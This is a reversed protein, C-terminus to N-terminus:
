CKSLLLRSIPTLILDLTITLHASSSQAAWILFYKVRSDSLIDYLEDFEKSGIGQFEQVLVYIYAKNFLNFGQVGSNHSQTTGM